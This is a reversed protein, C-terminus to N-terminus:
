EGRSPPVQLLDGFIEPSHGFLPCLARLLDILVVVLEADVIFVRDSGVVADVHFTQGDMDKLEIGRALYQPKSPKSSGRKREIPQSHAKM